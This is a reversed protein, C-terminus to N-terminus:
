YPCQDLCTVLNCIMGQLRRLHELVAGIRLKLKDIELLRQLSGAKRKPRALVRCFIPLVRLLEEALSNALIGRGLRPQDFPLGPSISKDVFRHPLVDGVADPRTPIFNNRLRQHTTKPEAMPRITLPPGMLM